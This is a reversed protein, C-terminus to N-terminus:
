ATAGKSFKAGWPQGNPKAGGTEAVSKERQKGKAWKIRRHKLWGLVDDSPLLPIVDTKKHPWENFKDRYNALVWSESRRSQEAYGKLEAYWRAKESPPIEVKKAKPATLGFEVLEGNAHEIHNTPKNELKCAPCVKSGAAMLANCGKCLMPKAPKEDKEYAEGKDGPQRSDLHDHHIDTFMGLRENNGALDLGILHSKGEATRVGRGWRQVLTIESKTPACDVLCRVDEDIGTTLVGVSSLIKYEGSRYKGFIERREDPDCNGDIYGCPVGAKLFEEQLAQAHARNVAFMFSPENNGKELWERVANGVIRQEGMVRASGAEDFDGAVTKVKSMDPRYAKGPGYGQVPTLWGEEILQKTTAAVILKSWRLGMGKAWPTASLGIVIKDKWDDSDLMEQMKLYQVHCEDQIVFDVMPMGRRVLTQVSAIQVRAYLNTRPHQAQIVGIDRIGENEFAKVTQNILSIAPAIFMPRRSKDLASAIMHAATLTKGMGTPAQLVIRKHGEKVAQRIDEIAKAQRPRLPRLRKEEQHPDFLGRVREM